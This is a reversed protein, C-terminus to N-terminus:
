DRLANRNDKVYQLCQAYHGLQYMEFFEIHDPHYYLRENFVEIEEMTLMDILARQYQIKGESPNLMMLPQLEDKSMKQRKKNRKSVM